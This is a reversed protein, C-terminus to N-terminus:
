SPGGGSSSEPAIRTGFADIVSGSLDEGARFFEEDLEALEPTLADWAEAMTVRRSAVLRSAEELVRRTRPADMQRLVEITASLHVGETNALYQGIGGNNLQAELLGVLFVARRLPDLRALQDADVDWVDENLAYFRDHRPDAPVPPTAPGVISVDASITGATSSGVIRVTTDTGVLPAVFTLQGETASEEEFAFGLGNLRQVARRLGDLGDQQILALLWGEFDARLPSWTGPEVAALEKVAEPTFREFDRDSTL